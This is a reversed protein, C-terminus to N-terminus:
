NNGTKVRENMARLRATLVRMVRLAFFPLRNCWSCFGLSMLPFSSQHSSTACQASRLSGDVAAMEGVVSPQGFSTFVRGMVLSAAIIVLLQLFLHSLPDDLNRTLGAVMAVGASPSGGAAAVRAPMEAGGVPVPLGSGLHLLWVIPLCTLTLILVYLVSTRKM